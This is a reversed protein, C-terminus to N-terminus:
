LMKASAPVAPTGEDVAPAAPLARRCHGVHQALDAPVSGGELAPVPRVTAFDHRLEIPRRLTEPEPHYASGGPAALAPEEGRKRRLARLHQIQLAEGAVAARQEALKRALRLGRLLHEVAQHPARQLM